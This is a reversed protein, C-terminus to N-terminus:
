KRNASVVSFLYFMEGAIQRCREAYAERAAPTGDSSGPDVYTLSIRTDAGYVVPCAENAEDCTMVAIFDRTPNPPDTYKKSFAKIDGESGPLRVLYVPNVEPFKRTIQMGADTLAMVAQPHFSSAETGGSYCHINEIGYYGAALQGWFQGMQSRRSNHTCIFVIRAVGKQDLHAAISDALKQLIEKRTEPIRDFENLRDGCYAELESYGTWDV